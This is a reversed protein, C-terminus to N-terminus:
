LKMKRIIYEIELRYSNSFPVKMGDHLYCRLKSLHVRSLYNINIIYSRHIRIFFFPLKSEFHELLKFATVMKGNKLIFDTTNNDAKLYVIDKYNIFRYDSYLRICISQELIQPARKKFKSLSLGLQHWDLPALLYDSVGAQIAELAFDSYQSVVIIYPVVEMYTYFDKIKSLSIETDKTQNSLFLFVLHAPKRLLSEISSLCNDLIGLCFYDQLSDLCAQITKANHSDAGIIFYAYKM